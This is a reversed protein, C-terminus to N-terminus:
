DYHVCLFIFRYLRQAPFGFVVPKMSSRRQGDMFGASHKKGTMSSFRSNQEESSLHAATTKCALKVLRFFINYEKGM